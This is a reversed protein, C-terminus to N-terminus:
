TAGVLWEKSHRGNEFDSNLCASERELNNSIRVDLQSGRTTKMKRKRLTVKETM